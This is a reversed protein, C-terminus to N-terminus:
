ITPKKAIFIFFSSIFFFIVFVLFPINYSGFVDFLVGALLPGGASAIIGMSTVTGRISGIHERGFYDPWILASM